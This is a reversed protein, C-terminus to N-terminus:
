RSWMRCRHVGRDSRLRLETSAQAILSSMVVDPLRWKWFGRGRDEWGPPKETFFWSFSWRLLPCIVLPPGFGEWTGRHWMRVRRVTVLRLRLGDIDATAGSADNTNAGGSDGCGRPICSFQM